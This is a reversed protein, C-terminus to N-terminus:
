LLRRDPARGLHRSWPDRAGDALIAWTLVPKRPFRRSRCPSIQNVQKSV